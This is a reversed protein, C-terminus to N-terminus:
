GWLDPAWLWLVGRETQFVVRAGARGEHALAETVLPQADRWFVSFSARSGDVQVRMTDGDDSVLQSSHFFQALSWSPERDPRDDLQAIVRSVVRDWVNRPERASLAAPRKQVWWVILAFLAIWPLIMGILLTWWPHTSMFVEVAHM